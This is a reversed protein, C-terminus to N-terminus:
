WLGMGPTTNQTGGPAGTAQNREWITTLNGLLGNISNTMGVAGAARANGMDALANAQMGTAGSAGQGFMGAANGMASGFNTRQDMIAAGTSARLAALNDAATRNIGLRNAGFANLAATLASARNGTADIMGDAFNSRLGLRRNSLTDSSAAFQDSFRDRVAGMAQQAGLGMGALGGLRDLQTERDQAAMGMRLRELAAMTAGSRASGGAMAGAEVTDRGQELAFRAAPSMSLASVGAPLRNGLGM